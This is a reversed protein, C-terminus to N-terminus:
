CRWTTRTTTTTATTRRRTSWRRRAAARLGGLEPRAGAQAAGHTVRATRSCTSGSPRWATPSRGSRWARCRRSRTTRAARTGTARRARHLRRDGRLHVAGPVLHRLHRPRHQRLPGEDDVFHAVQRTSRARGRRRVVRLLAPDGTRPGLQEGTLRDVGDNLALELCKALNFYGSSAMRDKGDCFGAVCGNLSSARADELTKGRNVMGLVLVDSNFMAPMGM